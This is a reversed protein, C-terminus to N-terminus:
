LVFAFVTSTEEVQASGFDAVRYHAIKRLHPYPLHARGPDGVLVTIGASVCRALFASVKKSAAADYFLDGVLVIDVEPPEDPTLDACVIRLAVDNARANLHAAIAAHPDIDVAMVAAAGAKMAMIGVLGSGSGLDLVRKGTVTEPHARLHQCLVLGGAWAYAWYPAPADDGLLRRLGSGPHATHLTIADIGPVPALPLNALIFVEPDPAAPM